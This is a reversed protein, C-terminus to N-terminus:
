SKKAKEDGTGGNAGDALISEITRSAYAEDPGYTEIDITTGMAACLALISLINKADAIRGGCRLLVVAKMQRMACAITKALLLNVGSQRSVVSRTTKM